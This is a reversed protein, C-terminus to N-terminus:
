NSVHAPFRLYSEKCRQQDSATYGSLIEYRWAAAEGTPRDRPLVSHTACIPFAGNRVRCNAYLFSCPGITKQPTTRRSM